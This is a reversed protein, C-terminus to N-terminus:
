EQIAKILRAREYFLSFAREADTGQYIQLIEGSYWDKFEVIWTEQIVALLLQGPRELFGFYLFDKADKSYADIYIQPMLAKMLENIKTIKNEM